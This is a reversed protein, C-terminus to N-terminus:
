EEGEVAEISAIIGDDESKNCTEEEIITPAIALRDLVKFAGRMEASPRNKAISFRVSQSIDINLADRDILDGHPPLGILPCWSPREMPVIPYKWDIDSFYHNGFGHEDEDLICHNSWGECEECHTMFVCQYCGRPMKMDRILISM